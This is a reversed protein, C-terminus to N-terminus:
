IIGIIYLYGGMFLFVINFIFYLMEVYNFM